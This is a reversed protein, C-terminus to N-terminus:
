RRPDVRDWWRLNETMIFFYVV